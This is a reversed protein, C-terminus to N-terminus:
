RGREDRLQDVEARLAEVEEALAVVDMGATWEAVLQKRITRVLDFEQADVADEKQHRVEVIRADLERIQGPVKVRPVTFMAMYAILGALFGYRHLVWSATGLLALWLALWFILSDALRQKVGM